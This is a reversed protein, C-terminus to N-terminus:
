PTNIKQTLDLGGLLTHSNSGFSQLVGAIAFLPIHEVDTIDLAKFALGLEEKLWDIGHAFSEQIEQASGQIDGDPVESFVNRLTATCAAFVRENLDSAKYQANYAYYLSLTVIATVNVVFYPGYQIQTPGCKFTRDRSDVLVLAYFKPVIFRLGPKLIIPLRTKKSIIVKGGRTRMAEYGEPVFRVTSVLLGCIGAVILLFKLITNWPSPVSDIFSLLQGFGLTM